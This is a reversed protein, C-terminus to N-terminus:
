EIRYLGGSETKRQLKRNKPIKMPPAASPIGNLSAKPYVIRDFQSRITEKLLESITTNLQEALWSWAEHEGDTMRVAILRGRYLNKPLPPKPM